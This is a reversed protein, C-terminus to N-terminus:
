RCRLVIIFVQERILDEPSVIDTTQSFVGSVLYVVQVLPRLWKVLKSGRDRFIKFDQTHEELLQIVADPSGCNHLKNAFSCKTLDIGTQKAYQTLAADFISELGSYPTTALTM